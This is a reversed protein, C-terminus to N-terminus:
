PWNCLWSRAACGVCTVTLSRCVPECICVCGFAIPMSEELTRIVVQFISRLDQREGVARTIQDLLNLREVQAQLKEDARKRESIDRAIKSAGVIKGSAHRLPSVTLSVHIPTGDKRIRTTEYHDISEGRQIRALIDPEEDRSGPPILLSVPQGIMEDASYGFINEAGANWSTVIGELTKSIIADDSSEVIAALSSSAAEMRKRETIDTSIGGVAYIKGTADCIPFKVSLYTRLGNEAQCPKKRKWQKAPFRSRSISPVFRM